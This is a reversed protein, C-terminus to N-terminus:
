LVLVGCDLAQEVVVRTQHDGLHRSSPEGRTTYGVKGTIPDTVDDFWVACLKLAQENVKLKFDKGTKYSLMAWGTVSSDNDNDQPQYRWVMYPNRHSELYNIGAQASKKLRKDKSRGYVECM